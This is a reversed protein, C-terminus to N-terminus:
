QQRIVVFEGEFLDLDVDQLAHVRVESTTYTKTLGRAQFDAPRAEAPALRVAASTM